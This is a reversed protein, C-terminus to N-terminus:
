LFRRRIRAGGSDGGDQNGALDACDCRGMRKTDNWHTWVGQLIVAILVLLMIHTGLARDTEEYEVCENDFGEEQDSRARSLYLGIEQLLRIFEEGSKDEDEISEFKDMQGSSPTSVRAECLAHRSQTKDPTTPPTLHGYATSKDKRMLTLGNIKGGKEMRTDLYDGALQDAQM